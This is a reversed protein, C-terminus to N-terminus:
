SIFENKLCMCDSLSGEQQRKLRKTVLCSACVLILSDFMFSDVVYLMFSIHNVNYMTMANLVKNVPM